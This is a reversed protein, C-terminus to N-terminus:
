QGMYSTDMSQGRVRLILTKDEWSEELRSGIMGEIYGKIFPVPFAPEEVRIENGVRRINGWGMANLEALPIDWNVPNKWDLGAIYPDALKRKIASLRGAEYAEQTPLLHLLESIMRVYVVIIRNGNFQYFGPMWEHVALDQYFNLANQIAEDFSEIFGAQKLFQLYRYSELSIKVKIEIEKSM